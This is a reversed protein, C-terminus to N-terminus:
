SNQGYSCWAVYSHTHVTNYFSSTLLHFTFENLLLSVGFIQIKAVWEGQQTVGQLLNTTVHLRKSDPRDTIDPM